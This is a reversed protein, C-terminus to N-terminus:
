NMQRRKSRINLQWEGDCDGGTAADGQIFLDTQAREILDKNTMNEIGWDGM